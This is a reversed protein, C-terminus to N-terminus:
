FPLSVETSADLVARVVPATGEPRLTLHRGGKDKFTYMEKQVVDSSAGSTRVFLETSEFAPTEVYRYGYLTALGHALDYLRRMRESEPPLLDTTGRPPALEM